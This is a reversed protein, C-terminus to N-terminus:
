EAQARSSWRPEIIRRMQTMVKYPAAMISDSAEVNENGLFDTVVGGAERVLLAGAAVDWPKLGIEFFGDVRGAAVYALDLSATGARRFDEITDWLRSFINMYARMDQRQRFPFATALIAGELGTRSSVRMRQNNVFAGNGRSATFMEDRIPDFVVAHETRGAVQQAISVAFHPIGHLYNSTGDLPDIVWVTDSEGSVGGEEGLIAHEPYYRSIQRVIEAECARDVESVYDHRAKRKVPIADVRSLQRRMITGARRAAQVAVNLAPHAM